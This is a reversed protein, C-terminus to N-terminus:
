ETRSEGDAPATVAKRRAGKLKRLSTEHFSKQESQRLQQQAQGLVEDLRSLPVDPTSAAARLVTEYLDAMRAIVSEDFLNPNYMWTTLLEEDPNNIFLVLDFRSTSSVGLPGPKLGGFERPGRPTNQMVFLVQVLPHYTLNREPRLEEVLKEFPVDQHAFAGLSVEKVRRLLQTFTPDGTVRTRIPLLNVFFGILKETALQTRNALDTGVVVDEQGSLRALLLQFGALLTMFLTAGNRRSLAQLEQGLSEPLTRHCIGGWFNEAARRPRATPLELVPPAGDLQDKWYALQQQMWSETMHKRQWIAYDAYQLPLPELPSPKGQSFSEYLAALEQSLVGFSWRDTIIHHMNIVLAHDDDALKILLARVLPAVLLDFPRKAEDMALQRAGALRSEPPLNSVDLTTFPLKEVAEIVQVPEGDSGEFRTRLSEHRQLIENLSEELVGAKMPGQLRMIYPVNYLPNQPELQDLFWLRQQAFSLPAKANRQAPALPAFALASGRGRLQAVHEALGNITPAEFLTRLPMDVGFAERVRSIVQTGLLSHGGLEFFNDHVSIKDLRLVETWISEIIEEAPTRPGIFAVDSEMRRAEPAPLTKRNVKGNPTLPFKAMEVIAVPVMYEPLRDKVWTRLEQSTAVQAATLVIYGVLKKEGPVDERAVVVCEQVAPHRALVAEIEGLEIRYGRVKVQSDARGLCEIRGDPLYRGLDGTRYMQSGPTGFPNPIFKEATLQPRNFYGQAVGDGGIYIERAIGIPAPQLHDDLIYVQTNAIPRGVVVTEDKTRFHHFTSWVTTETPGYFNFLSPEAELLSTCLEPPVAEAGIVRKLGAGTFGAELLLNWTTPTAHVITSRNKKLFSALEEGDGALHRHGIAVCGGTVLALYLEPISMDFAFSALAPFVDNAAVQLHKAMSTLLNVVARHQVQVGKPKGTSGSTYIIYVLDEPTAGSALDAASERSIADWDSDLCVITAAPLPQITPLLAHETVLVPVAADELMTAIRAAPYAPDVPVYAAGSKQIGLLGIMMRSSREVFIGVRQGPAAGLKRLYNALQNAQQNLERYTLAHDEFVCAVAEPTREVQQEFLQHLCMDRPYDAETANWDYLILKREESTLLPMQSLRLEPNVVVAELLTRFHGLMREITEREFLDTKYEMLGTLAGNQEALSFFLDGKSTGTSTRVHKMRLNGFQVNEVPANQLIFYVQVLPSHSLSREPQLEEVLKEFPVDQNMSANLLGDRAHKLIQSFTPDSQLRARLPLTSAFLGLLDEIEPYRRSAVPIGLAFDDQGSYRSMLSQFGALLTMFLTAGHSRSLAHLKETLERSFDLSAMDGASTEIAPRPRDTPLELVPPVDKLEEKWYAIQQQFTGAQSLARQWAAFDAYQIPLAPLKPAEGSIEAAYLAVLDRLLVGISWRDSIIHHICISLLQAAGALQVLTVRLLPGNALDFPRRSNAVACEFGCRESDAEILNSFDVFKIPIRVTSAIIQVPTGQVAVFTTRLSEHRAVLADVSRQLADIDLRGDLRHTSPVNYDASNPSLQELLWLSQQAASLPLAQDRPVQRLPPLELNRQKQLANEVQEALGALSPSEFIVRLSIEVQFIQRIRSIVQVALLSHGGTAFFNDYAGIQPVRLVECWIAAIREEVPTRPAVHTETEDRKYEPAPLAKRNIKGNPTLPFSEIAVFASPVMFAPVSQKLHDRLADENLQENAAPVIYAVLRQLGPQDERAMVLCQRVAPHKALVGEIEGLEIRFGRLKVQHDLRGLYELDGNPLWRCLDGTRYMRSANERFPNPVFREATLDPRGFYGRALGAGALYLEGPVGIPQPNGHADLVYAQSNPLPRGITVAENPRTLTYTSYTTDETPGYLNYVKEVSTASYIENVLTQALAEGALNITKVSKPVAGMHVLEAMASPVTNILTVEDRAEASPLYLANQLIIVKGGVSLSVFMEFVSLDFCVSTSFLVGALEDPTFVTQAWQVFTAASRHELAVGKPRGTSGSTFLVYALNEPTAAVVPADQSERSIDNWDADLCITKGSFNPLEPALAKQTLVVPAKADQLIHAIREKPYAPDLPVYAGGSKLIGLIAIVMEPTRECFVGILVDPGAGHKALYNALQNAKRNLEGYTVRDEGCVLAVSEPTRQAQSAVFDHLRLDTRYEAANDNFEVLVRHREEPPLLEFESIRREPHAAISQLLQEFHTISRIITSEDFLETDYEIRLLLGEPLEFAFWSMDFQSSGPHVPERRVKLGSAEFSARPINQLGFLVQFIPNYSLSREPQLEEVLKEFPIEQHAYGDLATQKVRALLERFTPEGSLDARMALTNIFFGILPETESYNRGAVTSGVVIDEQGSYRSLLLQFASLLTMFLTADEAQSLRRLRDLLNQSITYTVIAGHHAQVAPRPRDTPLELVPPAGALRKKWYAIKADLIEGKMWQRQWISFDAYQVTLEPLPSPLGNTFTEYLAAMERALLTGSWGDGVIHHLIIVLVHEQEALELLGVRLLPGKSLDFPELAQERAFRKIEAERAEPSLSSRVTVPLPLDLRPAIIQVPQGNESRFVTRLSEHRRVIENMTKRLAGLDLPGSMRYM